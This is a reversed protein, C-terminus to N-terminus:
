GNQGLSSLFTRLDKMLLILHLPDTPSEEFGFRKYWDAAAEHKAHVLMLRIGLEEAAENSRLMADQLLSRGLGQGQHALDVALRALLVTPLPRQKPQGKGARGGADEPAVQAAALAYYGVVRRGDTSVFVRASGSAHAALSHDALWRDLESEGSSFDGRDHKRELPVPHSYAM